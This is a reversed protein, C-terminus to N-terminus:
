EASGVLGREALTNALGRDLWITSEADATGDGLYFSQRVLAPVRDGTRRVFERVKRVLERLDVDGDAAAVVDLAAEARLGLDTLDDPLDRWAHGYKQAARERAADLRPDTPPTKRFAPSSFGLM